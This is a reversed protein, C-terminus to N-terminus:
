VQINQLESLKKYVGGRNMLERHDGSEVIEGKEIVLILDAKAITSLRHAIVFTTRNKMVKELADQVLKESESDLASTAEDLILVKPNRLIARAIAVRQKQGTSLRVGKEGVIQEYKKPFKDIFEHCNAWQSAETIEEKTAGLKAYAINNRISDNFLDIEQPVIAINDRLDKLKIERTDIGDFLIKGKQPINYLSILDVLTSKGEGSKGVIAVMKGAPIKFNIGDLIVEDEYSFSVNKFEIDGRPNKLRIPNNVEYHEPIENFIKESRKVTAIGEQLKKYHGGLMNIANSAFNIYAILMVFQGLTIKNISVLYIGSAFLSIVSITSILNQWFYLNMWAIVQRQSLALGNQMTEFNKNIEFDEQSNSKINIINPTRDFVNGYYKEFFKNIKRQFIIIPNTRKITVVVFLSIFVIFILALLWNIWIIVVFALFSTILYPIIGFLAYDVLSYLYGDARSFKQIIEGIKKKKHFTMPLKILHSISTNILDASVRYGLKNSLITRVRMLLGGGIQLIAWLILLWYVSKEFFGGSTAIDVIRSYVLPLVLYTSNELIVFIVAIYFDKKYPKLYKILPAFDNKRFM